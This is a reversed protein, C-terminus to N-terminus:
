EFIIKIKGTTYHDISYMKSKTKLLLKEILNSGIFGAGGTVIIYDNIM